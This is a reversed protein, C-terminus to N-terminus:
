GANFCNEFKKSYTAQSVRFTPSDVLALMSKNHFLEFRVFFEGTRFPWQVWVPVVSQDVTRNHKVDFKVRQGGFVTPFAGRLGQGTASDYTVYVVSTSRDKFGQLNQQVYYVNGPLCRSVRAATGGPVERGTRNGYARSLVAPDVAVIKAEAVQAQGPDPKWSPNIAWVLGLGGTVLGILASWAGISLWHPWRLRADAREQESGGQGDHTGGTRTAPDAAKSAM